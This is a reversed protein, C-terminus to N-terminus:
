RAVFDLDRTPHPQGGLYGFRVVESREAGSRPVQVGGEVRGGVVGPPCGFVTFPELNALQLQHSFGMCPDARENWSVFVYGRVEPYDLPAGGQDRFSVQIPRAEEDFELTGLDLYRAGQPMEFRHVWVFVDGNSRRLYSNLYRTGPSIGMATYVSRRQDDSWEIACVRHSPTQRSCRIHSRVYHDAANAVADPWELSWTVFGGDILYRIALQGGSLVDLEVSRRNQDSWSSLRSPTGLDPSVEVEISRSWGIAAAEARLAVRVLGPALEVQAVRGDVVFPEGPRVVQRPCPRRRLDALATEVLANREDVTSPEGAEAELEASPVHRVDVAPLRMVQLDVWQPWEVSITASRRLGLQVVDGDVEVSPSQPSYDESWVRPGDSAGGEVFLSGPDVSEGSDLDVWSVRLGSATADVGFRRSAEGGEVGGRAGVLAREGVLAWGGGDLQDAGSPRAADGGGPGLLILALM